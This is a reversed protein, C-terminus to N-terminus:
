GASVIRWLLSWTGARYSVSVRPLRFVDDGQRARGKRTTVACLYGAEAVADRAADNLRGYPYCFTQIPRQLEQELSERSGAIEARLRSADAISTLDPHTATHAGIDFGSDLLERAGNVDLLPQTRLDAGAEWANSRGLYDSVLFVTAPFGLSRLIPAASWTLDADGDDFTVVFTRRPLPSGAAIAEGAERLPIARWGRRHLFRMQAQFVPAHCFISRRTRRRPYNGVFHYTLIPFGTM